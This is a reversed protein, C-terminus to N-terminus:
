EEREGWEKVDPEEEPAWVVEVTNGMPDKVPFSWYFKWAPQDHYSEVGADLLRQVARGFTEATLVVSWSVATSTGAQWGPQWAWGPPARQAEPNQMITFQLDDCNYAVSAEPGEAFYIENLGLIQSYFHRMADLDQCFLYIFKVGPPPSM